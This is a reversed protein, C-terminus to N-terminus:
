YGNISYGNIALLLIVMLYENISYGNIVMLVVFKIVMLLWWYFM